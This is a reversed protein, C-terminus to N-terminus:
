ACVSSSCFYEELYNGGIAGWFCPTFQANGAGCTGVQAGTGDDYVNYDNGNKVFHLATGCLPPSKFEAEPWPYTRDGTAGELDSSGDIGDCNGRNGPEVSKAETPLPGSEAAMGGSYLYFDAMAPAALTLAATVVSFFSTKM